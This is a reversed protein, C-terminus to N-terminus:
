NVEKKANDQQQQANQRETKKNQKTINKVSNTINSISSSISGIADGLKTGSVKDLLGSLGEEESDEEEKTVKDVFIGLGLVSVFSRSSWGKGNQQTTAHVLLLTGYVEIRTMKGETDDMHIFKVPMAPYLLSADGYSWEIALPMGTTISIESAAKFPNSSIREDAVPTMSVGDKKDADLNVESTLTRRAGEPGEDTINIPKELISDADAIKFGRGKDSQRTEADDNMVKECTGLIYIINGDEKFTRTSAFYKSSPVSYIILKRKDSSTSEFRKNNYLPYIFWTVLNNYTQLYNGVGANYLGGEKQQIYTPLDIIKTEQPIITTEREKENDPPVIDISDIVPSGEIEALGSVNGMASSVLDGNSTKKFIGGCTLVRLPEMARDLLQLKLLTVSKVNLTFADVHKYDSGDIKQNEASLFLAKYRISPIEANEDYAENTFQIPILKITVELNDKFPYIDKVYDGLGVMAEYYVEDGISSAYDRKIDLYRSKVINIDKKETHLIGVIGLYKAESGNKTIDQIPEWLPSQEIHFSM